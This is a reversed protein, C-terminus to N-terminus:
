LLADFGLVFHLTCKKLPLTIHSYQLKHVVDKVSGKPFSFTLCGHVIIVHIYYVATLM